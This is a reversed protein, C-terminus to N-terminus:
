VPVVGSAADPATLRPVRGAGDASVAAARDNLASRKLRRGMGASIVSSPRASKKSRLREAEPCIDHAVHWSGRKAYPGGFL